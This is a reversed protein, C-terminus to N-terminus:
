VSLCQVHYIGFSVNSIYLYMHTPVGIMEEPTEKGVYESGMATLSRSRNKFATVEDNMIVKEERM